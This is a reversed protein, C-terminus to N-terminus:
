LKPHGCAPGPASISANQLSLDAHESTYAVRAHSLCSPKSRPEFKTLSDQLISLMCIFLRVTTVHSSQQMIQPTYQSM